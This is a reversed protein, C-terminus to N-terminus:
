DRSIDVLLIGKEVSITQKELIVVNSIGYPNGLTMKGNVIPFKFGQINIGDSVEGLPLLSLVTGVPLKLDEKGRILFICNKEDIIKGRIEFELFRTLLYINGLSHDFRTGLAGFITVEAVGMEIALNIALETDTEDKCVPYRRIEVDHYYRLTEENISDMDGLIVDPIVGLKKAFNAGGDACIIYPVKIKKLYEKYFAHDGYHGNTFILANM